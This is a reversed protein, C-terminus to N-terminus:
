KEVKMAGSVFSKDFVLYKDGGEMVVSLVGADCFARKYKGLSRPNVEISRALSRVSKYKVVGGNRFVYSLLRGGKVWGDYNILFSVACCLLEERSLGRRSVLSEDVVLVDVGDRDLFVDKLRDLVM